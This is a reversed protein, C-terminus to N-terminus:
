QRELRPWVYNIEPTETWGFQSYWEPNKALLAARHSAHFAPDGLWPPLVLKGTRFRAIKDICTDKYGRSIWERCVAIGYEALATEYGRWMKVAPHNQWGYSPDSLAILIQLAEPRQKGCRPRDLVGASLAFGSYALFTQM